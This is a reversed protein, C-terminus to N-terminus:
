NKCLGKPTWDHVITTSPKSAEYLILVLATRKETGTATLHMPPGGPVIVNHGGARGIQKGDPTELCTEGTLTYWAEPGGHVHPLSTMGPTFVAELYQASYAEGAMVPLPGIQDIRTGGSPAKWAADEITLLWIKGFSELVVGRSSRAAEGDTRTPYTDLYWFAQPNPMKGVPQNAIIWCGVDRDARQGTQVARQYTACIRPWVIFADDALRRVFAFAADSDGMLYFCM